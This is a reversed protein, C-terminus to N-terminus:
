LFGNDIDVNREMKQDPKVCIIKSPVKPSVGHKFQVPEETLPYDKRLPHGEWDDPMLLRKLDPHGEFKVGFLDYLEREYWSAGAWLPCVSPLTEGREVFTIIRVRELTIPHHLWYVIKTKPVPFLYDVATLDMLVEFGPDPTQKLYILADILRQKSVELTTEGMFLKESIFNEGLMSKLISSLENINM